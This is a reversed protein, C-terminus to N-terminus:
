SQRGTVSKATHKMLPLGSAHQPHKHFNKVCKRKQLQSILSVSDQLLQCDRIHHFVHFTMITGVPAM